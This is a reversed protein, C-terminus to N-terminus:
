DEIVEKSRKVRKLKIKLIIVLIITVFVAGTIGGLTDICIDRINGNRGSVFLQHFEDTVSYLCCMISSILILYGKNYKKHINFGILGITYFVSLIAYETFHALKRVAFDLKDAIDTQKEVELSSYGEIHEIIFTTVVNRSITDSKVATQNSFCFITIMWFVSFAIGIVKVSKM